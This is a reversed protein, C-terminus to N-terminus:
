SQQPGFNWPQFILDLNPNQSEVGRESEDLWKFWIIQETKSVKIDRMEHDKQHKHKKMEINNESMRLDYKFSGFSWL